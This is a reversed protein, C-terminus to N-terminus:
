LASPAFNVFSGELVVIVNANGVTADVMAM